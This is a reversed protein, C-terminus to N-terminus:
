IDILEINQYGMENCLDEFKSDICITINTLSECINIIRDLAMKYSVHKGSLLFSYVMVGNNYFNCKAKVESNRKSIIIKDYILKKIIEIKKQDNKIWHIKSYKERNNIDSFYEKAKNSLKLKIDDTLKYSNGGETLNYGDVLSNYENIFLKEFYNLFNINCTHLLNVEFNEKGYKRIANNLKTCQHRKTNNIAESVHDNFRKAYSYNRYKGHNLVYNKTQGIYVKNTIKCNIIYIQGKIDKPYDINM